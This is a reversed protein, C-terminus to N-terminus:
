CRPLFSVRSNRDVYIHLVAGGFKSCEEKVDDSIEKDWDPETERCLVAADALPCLGVRM